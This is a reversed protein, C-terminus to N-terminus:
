ETKIRFSFPVLHQAVNPVDANLTVVNAGDRREVSYQFSKGNYPNPLAPVPSLDELSNPLAGNEAVHMRIAEVTMLRNLKFEQRTGASTAAQVAPMLMGAIVAGGSKMSNEQVWSSVRKEAEAVYDFGLRGPLFGGKAVEDLLREIDRSADLLVARMAPMSNVEVEDMGSAILNERAPGTAAVGLLSLSVKTVSDNGALLGLDEVVKVWAENWYQDSREGKEAERLAPLVRHITSLEFQISRSVDILPRPLTALSWYLNPSGDHEILEQVNEYMILEIAIGVLTQVLSEGQAGIFRSLRFGDQLTEIAGEFDEDQMQVHIKLRLLRALSRSQQIEPLLVQFLEPGEVDRLRLDYLYDESTALLHMEHFVNELSEVAERVESIDPMNDEFDWSEIEMRRESPLDHWMLLARGFHVQASGPRLDFDPVWFRHKLAPTSEGVAKLEVVDMAKRRVGGQVSKGPAIGLEELTMTSGLEEEPNQSFVTQAFCSITLAILIPAYRYHLKRM